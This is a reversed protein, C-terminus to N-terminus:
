VKVTKQASEAPNSYNSLASELERVIRVRLERPEMVEVRAGYSLLQEVFDDSLRLKYKFISYRDHVYEEQSAHLPLTRFYKAQRPDVKLSVTRVTGQGVVIGFAYRFYESANVTPDPTFTDTQLNMRVIRDLAYTKIKKQEVNMGVMYWRQRFLKLFYPEFVIDRSPQSRYYAQYDFKVRRNDRLADVAPALFERASPVDEVFIRDAVDTSKSLVEHTVATNLLWDTVQEGGTTDEIYYEYTSPDCKIEINFLEEAAQRYNHFTRRPLGEGGSFQSLQWLRDLEARSIRGYSRITDVLWIYKNFLDRAM